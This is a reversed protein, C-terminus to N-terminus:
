RVDITGIFVRGDQVTASGSDEVSVRAGGRQVRWLGVWVKWKKGRADEPFTIPLIDRLIKGPPAADFTLVQSLQVHDGDFRKGQDPEIHVFVGRGAAISAARRWDLELHVTDGAKPTVADLKGAVLAIGGEFRVDLPTAGDVPSERVIEDGTPSLLPVPAARAEPFLAFSIGFAAIPLLAAAVLVIPRARRLRAILAVALLSVLSVFLGGSASRPAFRLTLSHDGAPLDVTLLGRESKVDGESARWGRHWNQNVRLRAPRVLSVDLDIQNPSWRREEVHGATPDELYEEQTLDGELLPSEPIPYADWCSLSGRQMPAYYALAWRMGRAQHFPRDIAVPPASLDRGSAAHHFQWIMPAIGVIVSVTLVVQAIRAGRSKSDKRANAALYTVGQAALASAALAFLILYREPYRLTGFVPLRALAPFLSGKTAYGPALWLAVAAYAGLRVSRRRTFAMTMAPLALLGIYYTGNETKPTMPTFLMKALDVGGFGPMGGIVRPADLMTEAVPWLRAAGLGASLYAVVAMMGAVGLARRGDRRVAAFGLAEAGELACWVAALPVAYTGGFGICWAVGAAALAVGRTEFRLARRAGLAIWPVLAFGYFNVWGYPGATAFVGSLGFIPAAVLSASELAGRARAYRFTGELAVILMAFMTLAAGRSEGFLLTLLFTPSVFRAQPTGLLYMGGCYYPDWLPAQGFRRVALAAASEYHDLVQADRFENLMGATSLFPWTAALALAAFVALRLPTEHATRTLARNL